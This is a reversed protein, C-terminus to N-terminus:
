PTSDNLRYVWVGGIRKEVHYNEFIHEFVADLNAPPEFRRLRQSQTERMVPDIFPITDNDRNVMDVILVPRNEILDQLFRRNLEDSFPSEVLVPYSLIGTSSDRHAMLNIFPQFGWVLVTDSPNTKERIYQAVPHIYEIGAGRDFLLRYVSTSYQNLTSLSTLAILLIVASLTSVSRRQLDENIEPSIIYNLILGSLVAIYPSWCIYYHPYNRGSLSSFFVEVPLGILLFLYFDRAPKERNRITEPL